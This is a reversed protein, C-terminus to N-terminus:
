HLRCRRVRPLRGTLFIMESAEASKSIEFLASIITNWAFAAHGKTTNTMNTGKTGKTGKRGQAM